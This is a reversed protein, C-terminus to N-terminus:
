IQLGQAPWDTPTTTPISSPSSRNRGPTITPTPQHVPQDFITEVWPLRAAYNVQIQPALDSRDDFAGIAIELGGAHRYTLPTGCRACFGRDINVSSQFYSPEERTWEVGDRPVTVLAGSSRASSNRACAAIASPRAGSREAPHPFARRRMPLRRNSHNRDHDKRRPPWHETDHDPHQYSVLDALYPASSTDASTDEGPLQPSPTSM